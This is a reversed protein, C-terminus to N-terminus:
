VKENLNDRVKDIIYQKTKDFSMNLVTGIEYYLLEEARQFYYNDKESIKKNNDIRNQNRIYTTKIIKILNEINDDNLLEKYNMEINKEDVDIPEINPIRKILLEIEKKSIPKRLHGLRDEVPVNVKLSNDRILELCYYDLDKIYKKKIDIVKCIDRKYVVYDNIKYM